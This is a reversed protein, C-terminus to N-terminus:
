SAREEVLAQIADMQRRVMHLSLNLHKSAGRLPRGQLICSTAVRRRTPPWHERERMVVAYPQSLVRSVLKRIRRRVARPSEGRLQAVAIATLGERYVTEILSRDEPMLWVSRDVITEALDRGTRRRLDFESRTALQTKKSMQVM